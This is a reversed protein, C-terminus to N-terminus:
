KKKFKIFNKPNISPDTNYTFSIDANPTSDEQNFGVKCLINSIYQIVHNDNSQRITAIFNTDPFEHLILNLINHLIRHKNFAGIIIEYEKNHYFSAPCLQQLLIFGVFNSDSDLVKFLLYEQSLHFHSNTTDDKPINYANPYKLIHAKIEETFDNIPELRCM